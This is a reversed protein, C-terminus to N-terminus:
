KVIITITVRNEPTVELKIDAGTEYRIRALGLQSKGDSRTAAERMQVIYAELPDGTMIKKYLGLVEKAGQETAQNSVSAHIEGTDPFAQIVCHTDEGAGYKVANELLESASMAVADAKAQDSLAIAVFNQIFIRAPSIYKWRPGFRIEIYGDPKAMSAM